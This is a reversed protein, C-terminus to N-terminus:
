SFQDASTPPWTGSVGDAINALRSFGTDGPARDQQADHSWRVQSLREDGRPSVIDFTYVAGDFSPASLRGHVARGVDVWAESNSPLRIWRIEVLLPGSDPLLAARITPDTADIDVRLRSPDRVSDEVDSIQILGRVGRYLIGAITADHDGSWLDAGGAIRMAWAGRVAEGPEPARPAEVGFLSPNLGVGLGIGIDISMEHVEALDFFALSGLDLATTGQLVGPGSQSPSQVPAAYFTGRESYWMTDGIFTMNTVNRQYTQAGVQTAARTNVDLVYLKGDLGMIYVGDERAAGAGVRGTVGALAGLITVSGDDPDVEYLTENGFAPRGVAYLKGGFSFLTDLDAAAAFSLPTFTSNAADDRDLRILNNVSGGEIGYLFDGHQTMGDCDRRTNGPTTRPLSGRRTNQTVDGESIEYLGVRDLINTNWYGYLGRPPAM